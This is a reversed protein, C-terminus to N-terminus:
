STMLPLHLYECSPLARCSRSLLSNESSRSLMTSRDSKFYEWMTLSPSEHDYSYQQGDLQYHLYKGKDQMCCERTSLVLWTTIRVVSSPLLSSGFHRPNRLFGRQNTVEALSCQNFCHLRVLGEVLDLFILQWLQTNSLNVQIAITSYQARTGLSTM